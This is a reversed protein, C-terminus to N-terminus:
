FYKLLSAYSAGGSLAAGNVTIAGTVNIGTSTTELKKANDYYLEAAGDPIAVIMKEYGSTKSIEIHGNQAMILLHGTGSHKICSHSGDHYLNLDDSGGFTLKNSGGAGSGDNFRWQYQLLGGTSTTELKKSNDYYLEVSGDSIAQLLVEGTGNKRLRVSNGAPAEINLHGTSNQIYSGANSSSHYIQLDDSNGCTLKVDDYIRFLNSAAVFKVDKGSNTGNNLHLDGTGQIEGTVKAGASTTEFKQVGDYYLKVTGDDACYISHEGSVARIYINSDANTSSDNQIFINGTKNHLVSNTGDHYLQLDDGTGLQVKLNDGLSQNGTFTNAGSTALTNTVITNDGSGTNWILNRVKLDGYAM